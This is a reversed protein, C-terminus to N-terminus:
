GTARSVALGPSNRLLVFLPSFAAGDEYLVVNASADLFVVAIQRGQRDGLDLFSDHIVVCANGNGALM